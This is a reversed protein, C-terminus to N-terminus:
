VFKGYRQFCNKLEEKTLNIMPAKIIILLDNHAKATRNEKSLLHERLSNLIKRKLKNRSVSSKLVRKGLLVGLRNYPLNNPNAKIAINGDSFVTKSNKPFFNIPTRLEKPLMM